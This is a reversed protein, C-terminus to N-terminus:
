CSYPLKLNNAFTMIYQRDIPYYRSVNEAFDTNKLWEIMKLADTFKGEVIVYRETNGYRKDNFYIIRYNKSPM